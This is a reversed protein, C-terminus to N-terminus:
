PTWQEEVQVVLGSQVTLWVPLQYGSRAERLVMWDAYDVVEQNAPDGVNVGYWTVPVNEAVPVTRTKTNTNRTHYDNPPPSEAGDEASATIAADGIFWCALDFTLGDVNTAVAQGYWKGDPLNDTGPTCGSGEALENTSVEGTSVTASPVTTATQGADDGDTGCATVLLASVVALEVLRGNRRSSSEAIAHRRRRPGASKAPMTRECPSSRHGRRSPLATLIRIPLTM